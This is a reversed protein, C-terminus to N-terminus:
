VPINQIMSDIYNDASPILDPLFAPIISKSFISEAGSSLHNYIVHYLPLSRYNQNQKAYQLTKKAHFLSKKKLFNFFLKVKLM